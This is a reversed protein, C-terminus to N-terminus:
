WLIKLSCMLVQAASNIKASFILVHVCFKVNSFLKVKELNQIKEEEWLCSLIYLGQNKMCDELIKHTKKVM